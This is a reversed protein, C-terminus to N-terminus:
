CSQPCFRSWGMLSAAGAITTGYFLVPKDTLFLDISDNALTTGTVLLLDCWDIADQTADGDEVFVGHTTKGVNDPDLDILRVQTKSSLAQALAPQYGIITIRCTGHEACIHDFVTQACLKPGADKCHITHEASGLSRAVANLTSVFVARNFNNDLPLAAVQSLTGKFNGYQDTFAQGRAGRFNSEMLKEKGKQIPFDTEEPNGIAQEVTLPGASVTIPEALIDERTWLEIAKDRVTELITKM